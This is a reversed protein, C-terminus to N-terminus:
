EDAPCTHIRYGRRRENEILNAAGLPELQRRLEWVLRALETRTHMPEDAWVAHMLEEHTCLAPAGGIAANREAMHRVLLHAQARIQIEHREEGRVLVLRAERPDYSLCESRSPRLVPIPAARTAQSDGAARFVLEFYSREGPESLSELICVSDCDRLATRSTVRELEDGRRIFTGNVGAGDLVFWRGGERELTCHAVRTVLRQPDPELAIDNAGALRGVSVREGSLRLEDRREGKPGLVLVEAEHELARPASRSEM